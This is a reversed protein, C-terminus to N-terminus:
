ANATRTLRRRKPRRELHRWFVPRQRGDPLAPLAARSLQNDRLKEDLEERVADCVVILQDLLIFAPRATPSRLRPASIPTAVRRTTTTFKNYNLSQLGPGRGHNVM